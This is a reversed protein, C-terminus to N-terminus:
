FKLSGQMIAFHGPFSCFYKYKESKSFKSTNLEVYDEKIDKEGGGVITHSKAIIKPDTGLYDAEKGAKNCAEIVAPLDKAKSIVVNHGMIAAPLKGTHRLKIYFKKCDLNIKLEKIDKGNQQYKMADNSDLTTKCSNNAADFLGKLRKIKDGVSEEKNPKAVHSKATTTETKKTQPKTKSNCSISLVSLTALSIM